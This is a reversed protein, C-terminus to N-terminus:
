SIRGQLSRFCQERGAIKWENTENIGRPARYFLDLTENSLRDTLLYCNDHTKQTLFEWSLMRFIRQHGTSSSTHAWRGHWPTMEAKIFDSTWPQRYGSKTERAILAQARRALEKKNPLVPNLTVAVWERWNILCQPKAKTESPFNDAQGALVKIWSKMSEPEWCIRCSISSWKELM